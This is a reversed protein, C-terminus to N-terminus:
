DFVMENAQDMVDDEFSKLYIQTTRETTHGLGQSIIGTAVGKRKAITAWSHRSVYSTLKLSLNLENGVRNLLRNLWRLDNRYEGYENTEKEIIPLLLDSGSKGKRYEKVLVELKPHIKINYHIGTKSRQYQIRNGYIDNMRLYAMDKFSMGMCYYSFLFLKRAWELQPNDFETEEIKKIEEYSLARKQTNEKRIKFNKFPYFKEQVIGEKIASNFIARFTRLHFGITNVKLGREEMHEEFAKLKRYNFQEFPIDKGKLFRAVTRMNDQYVRANGKKGTKILRKIRQEYYNLIKIKEVKGNLKATIDELSYPEDIADLELAFGQIKLEKTMLTHKMRNSNPHSRNPTQSKEDWQEPFASYGTSIYKRRGDKCIRIVIPHSGDRKLKKSKYLITTVSTM